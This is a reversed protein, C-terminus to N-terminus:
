TACPLPCAGLNKPLDKFSAPPSEIPSSSLARPATHLWIDGAGNPSHQFIRVLSGKLWHSNRQGARPTRAPRQTLWHPWGLGWVLARPTDRGHTLFASTLNKPKHDPGKGLPHVSLLDRHSLSGHFLPLKTHSRFTLYQDGKGWRPFKQVDGERDRM